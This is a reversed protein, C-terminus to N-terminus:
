FRVALNAKFAHDQANGAVQGTYTLGLAGSTGLQRHDRRLVPPMCLPRGHSRERRVPGFDVRAEGTARCERIM